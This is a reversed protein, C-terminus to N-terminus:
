AFSSSLQRCGWHIGRLSGALSDSLKFDVPRRRGEDGMWLASHLGVRAGFVDALISELNEHVGHHWWERAVALGRFKL